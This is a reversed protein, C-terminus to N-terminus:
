STGAAVGTVGAARYRGGGVGAGAETWANGPGRAQAGAMVGSVLM